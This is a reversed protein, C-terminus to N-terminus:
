MHGSRPNKCFLAASRGATATDALWSRPANPGAGTARRSPGLSVDRVLVQAAERSTSDIM